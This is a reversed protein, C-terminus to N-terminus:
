CNASQLSCRKSPRRSHQSPPRLTAAHKCQASRTLSEPMSTYFDIAYWICLSSYSLAAIAKTLLYVHLQPQALEGKRSASSERCNTRELGYSPSTLPFSPYSKRPVCCCDQKSPGCTQLITSLRLHLFLASVFCPLFLERCHEAVVNRLACLRESVRAVDIYRPADNSHPRTACAVRPKETKLLHEGPFVTSSARWMRSGWFVNAGCVSLAAPCFPLVRAHPLCRRKVDSDYPSLEAVDAATASWVGDWSFTEM